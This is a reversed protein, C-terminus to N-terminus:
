LRFFLRMNGVVLENFDSLFRFSFCLLALEPSNFTFFPHNAPPLSLAFHSLIFVM